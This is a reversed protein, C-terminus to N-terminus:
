KQSVSGTMPHTTIVDIGQSMRVLDKQMEVCSISHDIYVNVTLLIEGKHLEPCTLMLTAVTM